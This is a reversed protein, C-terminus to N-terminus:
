RRNLLLGLAIGAVAATGAVVAMSQWPHGHVYQDTNRAVARVRHEAAGELEALRMRGAKLSREASARLAITRENGSDAVSELLREVDAALAHFDEVLKDRGREVMSM